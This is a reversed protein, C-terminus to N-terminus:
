LKSNKSVELKIDEILQKIMIRQDHNLDIFEVGMGIGPQYYSVRAKVTFKSPVTINIVSGREIPHLTCLFMGDECINQSYAQTTGDILIDERLPYREYKRRERQEQNDM